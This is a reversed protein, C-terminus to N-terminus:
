VSICNRFKVLSDTDRDISILAKDLCAKVAARMM